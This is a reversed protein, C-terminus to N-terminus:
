TPHLMPREPFSKQQGLVAGKEHSLCSFNWRQVPDRVSKWKIVEPTQLKGAKGPFSVMVVDGLFIWCIYIYIHPLFMYSYKDIYIYYTYFSSVNRLLSKFLSIGYVYECSTLSLDGIVSPEHSRASRATSCPWCYTELGPRSSLHPTSSNIGLPNTFM